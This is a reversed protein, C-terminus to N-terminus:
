AARPACIWICRPMNPLAGRRPALAGSPTPRPLRCIRATYLRPTSRFSVTNRDDIAFPPAPAPRRDRFAAKSKSAVERSSRELVADGALLLCHTIVGFFLASSRLYAARASPADQRWPTRQKRSPTQGSPSRTAAVLRRLTPIQFRAAIRTERCITSRRTEGWRPSLAFFHIDVGRWTLRWSRLLRGSSFSTYDRRM